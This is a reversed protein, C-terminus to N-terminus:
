CICRSDVIRWLLRHKGPAQHLTGRTGLSLSCIVTRSLSRLLSRPQLDLVFPSPSHLDRPRLHRLSSPTAISFDACQPKRPTFPNKQWFRPSSCLLRPDNRICDPRQNLPNPPSQHDHTKSPTKKLNKQEKKLHILSFLSCTRPRVGQRTCARTQTLPNTIFPKQSTTPSSFSPLSKPPPSKNSALKKRPQM